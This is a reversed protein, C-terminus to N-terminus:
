FLYPAIGEGVDNRRLVNPSRMGWYDWLAGKRRQLLAAQDGPFQQEGGQSFCQEAVMLGLLDLFRDPIYSPVLGGQQLAGPAAVYRVFIPQNAPVDRSTRIAQEGDAGTLSYCSGGYADLQSLTLRELELGNGDDLRVVMARAVAGLPPTQAAFVYVHGTADAVALTAEGTLQDSDIGSLDQHLESVVADLATLLASVPFEPDTAKVGLKVRAQELAAAVTLAM